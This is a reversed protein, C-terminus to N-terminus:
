GLMKEMDMTLLMLNLPYNMKGSFGWTVKTLNKGLSETKFWASSTSAFPEIFRLEFDIRVGEEIKKIEQEGKGVDKLISEWTSVCGVTGDTGLFGKKMEPDKSSWVNFYDQNRLLKLYDFVISKPQIIQIERVLGYQKKVFLAVVLLLAVIGAIGILAFILIRM